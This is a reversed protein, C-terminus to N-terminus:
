SLKQLFAEVREQTKADWLLPAHGEDTVIHTEMHPHADQKATIADKSLLPSNSGAVLLHKLPKLGAFLPWFETNLSPDYTERTADGLKRDYALTVEGRGDTSSYLQQAFRVWGRDCLSTFYKSHLSKQYHAAEDISAATMHTGVYEVIDALGLPNLVPGIDNLIVGKLKEPMKLSLLMAHFGGRSTGLISFEDIGLELLGAEIDASEQELSYSKYDQAYQSEGRGRYDMAIVTRGRAQLYEAIAGFDRSNRTLGSLCLLPAATEHRAKWIRAALQLGDEAKWTFLSPQM